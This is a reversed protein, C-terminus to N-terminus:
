SLGNFGIFAVREYVPTLGLLWIRLSSRDERGELYSNDDMWHPASGPTMKETKEPPQSPQNRM